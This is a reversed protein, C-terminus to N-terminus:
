ILIKLGQENVSGAVGTEVLERNFRKIRTRLMFVCMEADDSAAQPIEIHGGGGGGGGERSHLSSFSILSSSMYGGTTKVKILSWRRLCHSRSM